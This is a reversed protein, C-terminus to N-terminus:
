TEPDEIEAEEVASGRIKAELVDLPDRVPRTARLLQREEATLGYADEVLTAVQRELELKRNLLEVQESRAEHQFKALEAVSKVSRKRDSAVNNIRQLFTQPPLGLWTLLRRDADELDFSAVASSVATKEWDHLEDALKVLTGVVSRIQAELASDGMSVRVDEMIFGQTALAEDKMHPLHRTLFWWMVHSNLVGLLCHDGAIAFVKDNPIADGELYAFFSHYLIVQYVIRPHLLLRESEAGTTQLEYWPYDGPKRGPWKGQKAEVWDIPRLELQQRFQSLHRKIAPYRDIEIGRRAFILYLGSVRPRWRDIDRGRLLPKIIEASRKDEKILRGRTAEDIFFADNFGTVPGRYISGDCYDKLPIGTNRIKELLAQVRPDELSWGENRLLVTPISQRRNAVFRGLDMRDNWHERPVSAAAMHETSPLAAGHAIPCARREVLVICPFTDADPFIPSHGFDVVELPRATRALFDRLREGYGARMWKNAVIMAMRGSARLSRVEQEQFYVYLDNTSDFTSYATKLYEKLPKITEQRVYPPNGVVCDFGATGAAIENKHRLQRENADAFGFFVEPFEIEWHFFRRDSQRALDTVLNVLKLEDLDDLSALFRSRSSLDLDQGHELLGPAKPYGFQRAVLLDLVIQYGSLEDRAHTYDSASQKAEAATADARQNVQIVDRIARLLPEYDIGFLKGKTAGALDKFTAGILSNGCRLHHDLFSLPAGLTFADLWLSVKALEVAMPNLDVGYICRKLVHRKLLNIDTLKDPDVTVGQETLAELINRRTRQLMFTVPNVPFQNLFTLLRDTIHDVTEVLFHGSGMAPDLTRFEFLHEVLERCNTYTKEAAFERPEWTEGSPKKVPYATAKQVENDFTKRVKRFEDRLAELKENLVPGVTQQVIYEVIPDPTYYSGSAKREAKDNSLYARGKAVVVKAEAAKRKGGAKLKAQALPIYKEAKKDTQTTLDEDAIKLKFELLGEYISGLHRVELSKYDIPVLSFTKDDPDRALHDIALALYRDPVKHELLYRAIRAERDDAKAEASPRAPTTIFLGGNYTPVNLMPNGRDMATFLAQLRDYFGIESSSYAKHLRVSVESEAIGAAAAIEEKLKKLSAARYPAERIPLLDRAEAYLLFLLRYLLTLTAEFTEALEDESPRGKAGLRSKRDELFGQALHPFIEEFVRKKLREGLEKAYDRSGTAVADLWCRQGEGVPQFAAARFFLWWYRFAENPDTDGSAILAETLDVEYFNTARSHAQKSYLRWQRGNTVIIWDAVDEELATVVAAGPNEDATPQGLQFDPGDLWRDWAYVFAASIKHGSDDLLLYDPTTSNKDAPKSASATFGLMKLLPEFLERRAEEEGKGLWRQRAGDLLSKTQHFPETPNERWASDDRLRSLLFHDAFLARNCFYDEAFAAAEFVSRLKDFQELGDRCTWTFRRITRLERSGPAKRDVAVVLPVVQIRQGAVPGRLEHRRKDLLVFELVSFDRTLILLHDVNSKGLVRALDYRSKATLSRLQVFVVRMFGEADESLVEIARIPAASDGSLGISESTLSKRRGTDYGLATLFAALAEASTLGQFERPTLHLDTVHPM